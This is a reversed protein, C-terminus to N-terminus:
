RAGSLDKWFFVANCWSGDPNMAYNPIVGASTWGLRRYLRDAAGGEVTDLVLLTRGSKRTEEEALLMLAEGLGSRRALRHVLLKAVDGRHPQNPPTAYVVQVTGALKGDIFGGLIFREDAEVSRICKHFFAVANAQGFPPMFSVSAGGEICDVLVAALDEALAGAEAASLRRIEISM